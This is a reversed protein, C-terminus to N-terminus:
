GASARHPTVNTRTRSRLRATASRGCRAGERSGHSDASRKARPLPPEYRSIIGHRFSAEYARIISLGAGPRHRCVPMARSGRGGVVGWRVGPCRYARPGCVCSLGEDSLEGFLRRMLASQSGTLMAQGHASQGRLERTSYTALSIESKTLTSGLPIIEADTRRNPVAQVQRRVDEVELEGTNRKTCNKVV